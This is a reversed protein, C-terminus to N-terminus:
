YGLAHYFLRLWTGNIDDGKINYREREREREREWESADQEGKGVNKIRVKM